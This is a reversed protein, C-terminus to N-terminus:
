KVLSPPCIYCSSLWAPTQIGTALVSNIKWEMDYPIHFSDKVVFCAIWRLISWFFDLFPFLPHISQQSPRKIPRMKSLSLLSISLMDIHNSGSNRYLFFSMNEWRIVMHYKVFVRVGDLSERKDVENRWTTFIFKLSIFFLQLWALQQFPLSIIFRARPYNFTTKEGNM